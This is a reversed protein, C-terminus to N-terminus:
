AGGGPQASVTGSVASSGPSILLEVRVTLLRGDSRAVFASLSTGQLSAIRGSYISPNGTTGLNVQGDTMSVGGGQLPQGQMRVELRRGGGGSIRLPMDITVLGTTSSQSQHLVGRLNATFPGDLSTPAPAASRGAGAGANMSALLKAPTGARKAWGKALPGSPLWAILAISGFVTAGFASIRRGAYTPWGQSVRIWVGIVIVALSVACLALLWGSKIDSGSGVTHLLAVPWAAYALWHTFRWLRHGVRQRLMSTIAVALLLDFSLAGFATWLPRYSSHLPIVADVFSVPAFGDLVSTVIHLGVFVLVLLSVNRHLTDLVFRPQGPLNWRKWNAVGLLMSLTLLLLAVTGTSRTLYWLVTPGSTALPASAAIPLTM